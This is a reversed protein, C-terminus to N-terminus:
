SAFLELNLESQALRAHGWAKKAYVEAQAIAVVVAELQNHANVTAEQVAQEIQESIESELREVLGDINPLNCLEEHWSTELRSPDDPLILGANSMALQARDIPIM